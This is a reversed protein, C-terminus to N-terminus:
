LVTLAPATSTPAFSLNALKRYQVHYFAQQFDPSKILETPTKGIFQKFDKIMHMQDFYGNEVVLDMMEQFNGLSLQTYAHRFRIMRLYQKPSIGVQQLFKRELTKRSIFFTEALTQVNVQGQRQEIWNLLPSMPTVHGFSSNLKQRLLQELCTLQAQQSTCACLRAALERGWKVCLEELNFVANLPLENLSSQLLGHMGDPTLHVTIGRYIGTKRLYFAGQAHAHVHATAAKEAHYNGVSTHAIYGNELNIVLMFNGDPLLREPPIELPRADYIFIFDKVFPQLDVSPLFRQISFSATLM